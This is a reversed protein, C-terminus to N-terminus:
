GLGFVVYFWRVCKVFGYLTLEVESLVVVKVFSIGYEFEEVGVVVLAKGVGGGVGGM